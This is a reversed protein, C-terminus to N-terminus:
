VSFDNHARYHVREWIRDCIDIDHNEISCVQSHRVRKAREDVFKGGTYIKSAYRCIAHLYIM